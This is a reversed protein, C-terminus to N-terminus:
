PCGTMTCTCAEPMRYMHMKSLAAASLTPNQAPMGFNTGGADLNPNPILTPTRTSPPMALSSDATRERLQNTKSRTEQPTGDCANLGGGQNTRFAPKEQKLTDKQGLV